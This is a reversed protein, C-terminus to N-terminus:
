MSATATLSAVQGFDNLEGGAGEVASGDEVSLDGAVFVGHKPATDGARATGGDVPEDAYAYLEAGGTVALGFEAYVAAGVHSSTGTTTSPEPAM